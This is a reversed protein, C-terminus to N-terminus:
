KKWNNIVPKRKGSKLCSIENTYVVSINANVGLYEKLQKIMAQENFKFDNRLIIKVIYENKNEQIFQWQYISDFYKLTRSLVMPAIPSGDPKYILDMRRGYLKTIYDYGFSREDGKAMIATDGTDYRIIPFAYNFLDTIVIRGLEGYDAYEDSDLKLLEFVYSGQNLYFRSNGTDIAEQALIGCEEDAYQSIINCNMYQQVAERTSEQLAESGAIAIKLSPM